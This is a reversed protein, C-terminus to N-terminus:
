GLFLIADTVVDGGPLLCAWGPQDMRPSPGAQQTLMKLSGGCVSKIENNLVELSRKEHDSMADMM